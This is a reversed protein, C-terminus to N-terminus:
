QASKMPRTLFGSAEDELGLWIARLLAGLDDLSIRQADKESEIQELVDGLGAEVLLHDVDVAHRKAAVLFSQILSVPVSHKKDIM